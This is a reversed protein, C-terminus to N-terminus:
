KEVVMKWIIFDETFNYTDNDASIDYWKYDIAINYLKTWTEIYDYWDDTATTDMNYEVHYDDANDQWNIYLLNGDLYISAIYWNLAARTRYGTTIVWTTQDLYTFIMTTWYNDDNTAVTLTIIDNWYIFVVDKTYSIRPITEISWACIDFTGTVNFWLAWQNIHRRQNTTERNSLINISMNYQKVM